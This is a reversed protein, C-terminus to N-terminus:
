PIAKGSDRWKVAAHFGHKQAYERFWVGEPSHRTICAIRGAVSYKLTKYAM